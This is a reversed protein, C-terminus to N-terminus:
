APEPLSVISHGSSPTTVVAVQSSPANVIVTLGPGPNDRPANDQKRLGLIATLDTLAKAKDWFKVKSVRGTEGVTVTEISAVAAATDDDMDARITGDESLLKRYDSFGIRMLERIVTEQRLGMSEMLDARREALAERVHQRALLKSAAVDPRTGTFGIARIADVGTKGLLYEDLFRRERRKLRRYASPASSTGSQKAPPPTPKPTM